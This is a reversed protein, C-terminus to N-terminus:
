PAEVFVGPVRATFAGQRRRTLSKFLQGVQSAAAAEASDFSERIRISRGGGAIRLLLYCQRSSSEVTKRQLRFSSVAEASRRVTETLADTSLVTSYWGAIPRDAGNRDDTLEGHMTLEGNEHCCLEVSQDSTDRITITIEWGSETPPTLREARDNPAGAAM